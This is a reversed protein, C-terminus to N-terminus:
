SRTLQKQRESWCTATDTYINFLRPSTPCGQKARGKIIEIRSTVSAGKDVSIAMGEYLSKIVQPLHVPYDEKNMIRRLKSQHVM